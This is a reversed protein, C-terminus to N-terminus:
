GIKFRGGSIESIWHTETKNKLKKSGFTHTHAQAMNAYKLLWGDCPSNSNFFTIRDNRILVLNQSYHAAVILAEQKRQTVREAL